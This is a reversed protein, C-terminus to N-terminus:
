LCFVRKIQSGPFSWVRFYFFPAWIKFKLTVFLLLKIRNNASIVLFIFIKQSNAENLLLLLLSLIEVIIKGQYDFTNLKAVPTTNSSQDPSEASSSAAAVINGSNATWFDEVAATWFNLCNFYPWLHSMWILKLISKCLNQTEM